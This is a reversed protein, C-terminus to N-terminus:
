LTEVGDNEEGIFDLAQETKEAKKAAAKKAAPKTRTEEIPELWSPLDKKAIPKATVVPDHRGGPTRYIDAYFGAELVRYKPM